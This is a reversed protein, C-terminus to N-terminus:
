PRNPTPRSSSCSQKPRPSPLSQSHTGTHLGPNLSSRCSTLSFALCHSSLSVHANTGGIGFSNISIREARDQPFPTPTVPVTLKYQDFNVLYYIDARTQHCHSTSLSSKSKPNPKGFKINPPITKNELALVCKIVSSVGSSGESHGLNPKVSGIFVGAEGFVRGVAHAEIPDGTPTGTGHCQFTLLFSFFCFFLPPLFFFFFVLELFLCSVFILLFSFSFPLCFFSVEVYATESPDLGVLEYAKRMLAEQAVGNPTVLSQGRGDSNTASARIVARIPNGDRLADELRKVYIATIAEARAFGDAAADFTKCSGEPSLLEGAAMTATLTPTMIISTGAVVAATADGSQIARCAEHLAVLSASCGTKIAMSDANAYGEGKEGLNLVWPLFSLSIGQDGLTMNM